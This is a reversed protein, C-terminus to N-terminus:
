EALLASPEVPEDPMYDVVIANNEDEEYPTVMDLLAGELDINTDTLDVQAFVPELCRWGMMTLLEAIQKAVTSDVEIVGSTTVVVFISQPSEGKKDVGFFYKIDYLGPVVDHFKFVVDSSKKSTPLFKRTFRKSEHPGIIQAVYPGREAVNSHPSQAFGFEIFALEGFVLRKVFKTM